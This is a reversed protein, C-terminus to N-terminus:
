EWQTLVPAQIFSLFLLQTLVSSGSFNTVVDRTLCRALVKSYRITDTDVGNSVLTSEWHCWKVSHHIKYSVYVPAVSHVSSVPANSECNPWFDTLRIYFYILIEM